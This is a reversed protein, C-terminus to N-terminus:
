HENQKNAALSADAVPGTRRFALHRSGLYNFVLAALSAVVLAFLPEALLGSAYRTLAFFIALNFGGGIGNIVAYRGWEDIRRPSARDSFTIQRNLWWTFTVAIAFSLLRAPLLDLEFHYHFLALAGADVLFGLGGVLVFRPFSHTLLFSRWGQLPQHREDRTAGTRM